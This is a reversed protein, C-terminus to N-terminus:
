QNVSRKFIMDCVGGDSFFTVTVLEWGDQGLRNMDHESINGVRKYEWKM